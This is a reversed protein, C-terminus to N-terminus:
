LDSFETEPSIYDESEPTQPDTEDLIRLIEKGILSETLNEQNAELFALMIEEQEPTQLFSGLCGAMDEDMLGKATVIDRIRESTETWFTM